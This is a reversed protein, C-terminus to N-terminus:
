RLRGGRLIVKQVDTLVEYASFIQRRSLKGLPLEETNIQFFTFFISFLQAFNLFGCVDYEQLTKKMTNIDFIMQILSKVSFPLKSKSKEADIAM